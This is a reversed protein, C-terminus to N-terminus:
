KAKRGKWSVPLINSVIGFLSIYVPYILQFFIISFISVQEEVRKNIQYFLISDTITKLLFFVPLYLYQQCTFSLITGVVFILNFIFVTLTLLIATKDTYFRAKGGWRLRQAIFAKLTSQPLTTVIADKSLCVAIKEPYKRKVAHLLFVDDGSQLGENLLNSEAFFKRQFAMNAANSLVPKGKLAMGLGTYVMALLDMRQFLNGPNVAPLIDVAGLLMKPKNNQLYAAYFSSIWKDSSNCDADTTLILEGKAKGVGFKIAAKKGQLNDPLNYIKFNGGTCYENLVERTKDTSHDNIFLVEYSGKPFNQSFLFRTLQPINLEENRLAVLVTILIDESSLYIDESDKTCKKKSLGIISIGILWAYFLFVITTFIWLVLM